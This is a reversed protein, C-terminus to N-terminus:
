EEKSSEDEPKEDDEDDDDKEEGYVSREIAGVIIHIAIGVLILCGWPHWGNATMMGMYLYSSLGMFFFNVKNVRKALIADVISPIIPALLFVIWGAAWGANNADTTPCYGKWFLGLLIYTIIALAFFIGNLLGVVKHRKSMNKKWDRDYEKDNVYIGDKSVHVSTGDSDEVHIGDKGIHVRDKKPEEKAPEIVPKNEEVKVEEAQVQPQNAEAKVEEKQNGEEKQNAAAGAKKYEELEKDLFTKDLSINNNFNVKCKDGTADKKFYNEMEKDLGEKTLERRARKNIRRFNDKRDFRRRRIYINRRFRGSFRPKRPRPGGLRARHYYKM